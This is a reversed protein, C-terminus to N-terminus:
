NLVASSIPSLLSAAGLLTLSYRMENGTKRSPGRETDHCTQASTGPSLCAPRTSVNVKTLPNKFPFPFVLLLERGFYTLM